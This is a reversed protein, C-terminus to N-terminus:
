LCIDDKDDEFIGGKRINVLARGHVRYCSQLQAEDDDGYMSRAVIGWPTLKGNEADIYRLRMVEREQVNVLSDIAEEILAMEDMAKHLQGAVKEEYEMRRIIAREMRDGTGFTHQSGDSEGKPAFKEASKMRAIRELQHEVEMKLHVYQSLRQQEKSAGM